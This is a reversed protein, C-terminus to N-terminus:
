ESTEMVNKKSGTLYFNIYEIHFRSSHCSLKILIAESSVLTSSFSNDQMEGKAYIRETLKYLENLESDNCNSTNM